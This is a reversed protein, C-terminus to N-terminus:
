ASQTAGAPRSPGSFKRCVKVPYGCDQFDARSNKKKKAPLFKSTAMVKSIQMKKIHALRFVQSFKCFCSKQTYNKSYLLVFHSMKYTISVEVITIILKANPAM